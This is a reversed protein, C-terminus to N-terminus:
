DEDAPERRRGERRRPSFLVVAAGIALFVLLFAAIATSSLGSAAGAPPATAPPAPPAAPAASAPPAAAPAGAGISLIMRVGGQAPIQFWQSELPAGDVVAHVSVTAGVTIGSFQARGDQGTMAKVVRDDAYHLEVAQDPVTATFSGRLVLVAVIGPALDGVQLPMGSMQAPDPAAGVPPSAQSSLVPPASTQALAPAAALLAAAALAVTTRM